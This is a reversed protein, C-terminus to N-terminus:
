IDAIGGSRIRFKAASLGSGGRVKCSKGYHNQLTACVMKNEALNLGVVPTDDYFNIPQQRGIERRSADEDLWIGVDSVHWYRGMAPKHKQVPKGATNTNTSVVAENQNEMSRKAVTGNTVVVAFRRPQLTGPFDRGPDNKTVNTSGFRGDHTRAMQRLTLAVQNVLAPGIKEGSLHHGLCGSVSDVVLLTGNDSSKANGDDDHCNSEERDIRALTALLSYADPVSSVTVRELARLAIMKADEEKRRGDDRDNNERQM